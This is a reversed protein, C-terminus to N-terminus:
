NDLVTTFVGTTGSCSAIYANVSKGQAQWALLAALISRGPADNANVYDIRKSGCEHNTSGKLFLIIDGTSTLEIHDIPASYWSAAETSTSLLLAAALVFVARCFVSRM